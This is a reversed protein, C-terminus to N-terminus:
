FRAVHETSAALWPKYIRLEVPQAGDVVRADFHDCLESGGIREGVRFREFIEGPADLPEAMEREAERHWWTSNPWALCATCQYGRQRIAAVSGNDVGCM